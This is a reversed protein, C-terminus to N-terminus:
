VTNNDINVMFNYFVQFKESESTCVELQDALLKVRNVMLDMDVLANIRRYQNQLDNFAAPVGATKLTPLQPAQIHSQSQSQPQNQCQNQAIRRQPLPPYNISDQNQNQQQQSVMQRQQWINNKPVPAVVYKMEPAPPVRVNRNQLQWIKDQYIKCTVSNATHAEGCNVCKAPDEPKKVCQHTLHPQACKLCRPSARCNSTAHGWMQCRHCQIIKKNNHHREWRIVTHDLYKVNQELHKYTINNGTVVMFMQFKTGKMLYVDKVPIQYEITLEEKIQNIDVEHYLGRLVFAHTKDEKPTYTHYELKGTEFNKNAAVWDEYTSVQLITTNPTHKWHYKGKLKSTLFNNLSKHDKFLGHIVIPPPSRKAKEHPRKETTETQKTPPNIHMDQHVIIKGAREFRNIIQTSSQPSQQVINKSMPHTFKNDGEDTMRRKKTKMEFAKTMEPDESKEGEIMKEIASVQSTETDTGSVSKKKRKILTVKKRMIKKGQESETDSIVTATIKEISTSAVGRNLIMVKEHASQEM